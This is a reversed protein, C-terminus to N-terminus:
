GEEHGGDLPLGIEVVQLMNLTEMRRLTGQTIHCGLWQTMLCAQQYPSFCWLCVSVSGMAPLGADDNLPFISAKDKYLLAQLKHSNSSTNPNTSAVPLVCSAWPSLLPCPVCRPQGTPGGERTKRPWWDGPVLRWRCCRWFCILSPLLLLKSATGPSTGKVLLGLASSSVRRPHRPEKILRRFCFQTERGQGEDWM